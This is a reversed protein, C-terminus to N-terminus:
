SLMYVRSPATQTRVDAPPPPVLQASGSMSKVIPVFVSFGCNKLASWSVAGPVCVAHVIVAPQEANVASPVESVSVVVSM